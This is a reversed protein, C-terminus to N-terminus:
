TNKEKLKAEIEKAFDDMWAGYVIRWEASLLKLDEDTLPKRQQPTTYIKTSPRFDLRELAANTFLEGATGIPEGQEQKPQPHHYLPLDFGCVKHTYSNLREHEKRTKETMWEDEQSSYWSHPEQKETEAIAKDIREITSDAEHAIMYPQNGLPTEHRYRWIIQRGQKMAEISM